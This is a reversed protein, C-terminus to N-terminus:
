TAEIALWIQVGVGIVMVFTMISIAWTLRVMTRNQRDSANSLEVITATLERTADSGSWQGLPTNM